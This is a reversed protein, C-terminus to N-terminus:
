EAVLRVRSLIRIGSIDQMATLAYDTLLREHKVVNEMGLQQLYNVGAALGVIQTVPQTGAEFRAPPPAFSTQEM